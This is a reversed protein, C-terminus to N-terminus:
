QQPRQVIINITDEPSEEAFLKSLRTAPSLKKKEDLSGLLFPLEDDDIITVSARWLTLKDAAFDDFEPAKEAKILKKLYDVTKSPSIEVSFARSTAEGDVLCLLTFIQDAM